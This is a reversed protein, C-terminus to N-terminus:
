RAGDVLSGKRTPAPKKTAKELAILKDRELKEIRDEFAKLARINTVEIMRDVVKGIDAEIQRAKVSYNEATETLRHSQEEWAKAFLAKILDLYPRSPQLSQLM